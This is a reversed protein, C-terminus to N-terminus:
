LAGFRPPHQKRYRLLDRGVKWWEDNLFPIESISLRPYSSPCEDLALPVISLGGGRLSRVSLLLLFLLLVQCRIRKDALSQPYQSNSRLIPAHNRVVLQWSLCLLPGLRLTSILSSSVQEHCCNRSSCWYEMSGVPSERRMEECPPPALLLQKSGPFM